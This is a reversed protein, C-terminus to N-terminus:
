NHSHLLVRNVNYRLAIRINDVTLKWDVSMNMPIELTMKELEEKTKIAYPSVKPKNVLEERDKKFKELFEETVYVAKQTSLLHYYADHRSVNVIEGKHGVGEVYETLILDINGWPKQSLCDVFKLHYNVSRLNRKRQDVEKKVINPKKHREVIVTYSKLQTKFENRMSAKLLGKVSNSFM